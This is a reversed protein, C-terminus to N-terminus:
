NLSKIGGSWWRASYVIAAAALWGIAYDPQSARRIVASHM